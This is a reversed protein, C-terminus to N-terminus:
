KIPKESLTYRKTHLDSLFNRFDAEFYQDLPSLDTLGTNRTYKYSELAKKSNATIVLM